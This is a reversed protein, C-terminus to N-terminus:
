VAENVSYLLDDGRGSEYPFSETWNKILIREPKIEMLGSLEDVLASHAKAPLEPQLYVTLRNAPLGAAGRGSASELVFLWHQESETVDLAVCTARNSAQDTELLIRMSVNFERGGEDFSFPLVIWRQGNKGPLRNLVALLPNKGATELAMERLGAATIPGTKDPANKEEQQHHNKNRRGRGGSDQRKQWDPDVAEAFGELAKPQLEVGKSEAAAAALSLAERNKAAAGTDAATETAAHKVMDAQAASPTAAPSLAVAQRRIAAMLEPKLPLSFFRAFSVISASLKDVPLGAAAILASASRPVAPSAPASPKAAQTTRVSPEPATKGATTGGVVGSTKHVYM